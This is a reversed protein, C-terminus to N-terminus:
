GQGHGDGSRAGAAADPLPGKLSDLHDAWAQMLLRREALYQARNYAARVKNREAHALQREILDPAFGLENLRTSALARFGHGTMEDGTYGLRRLAATVTNESMPRGDGRISPFVYRGRGTVERAARLVNLAQRSLPVVHAEGMKMKAAPIRWEEAAWDIEIWEAHRLEGPRVFVLPALRLAFLVPPFGTLGDIARLLAGIAAPDTVAGHSKAAVPALAGRLDATPDRKARGTAIAYRFIRGLLSRTRHATEHLGRAEIKRLVGLLAPAEVDAVGLAGIAPRVYSGLMWRAKMSTAASLKKEQLALYEDAVADFTSAASVQVQLRQAKREAAPNVGEALRLRAADRKLRAARLSVQPFTGLSLLQERGAYQFKWRWYRGGGPHILLFLGGGDFLKKPKPGPRAARCEVDTLM